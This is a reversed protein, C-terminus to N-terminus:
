VTASEMALKAAALSIVSRLGAHKPAIRRDNLGPELLKGIGVQQGRDFTSQLAGYSM